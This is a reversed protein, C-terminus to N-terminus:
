FGALKRPRVKQTVPISNGQRWFLHHLFAALLHERGMLHRKWQWLQTAGCSICWSSQTPHHHKLCWRETGGTYPHPPALFGGSNCRLCPPTSRSLPSRGDWSLASLPLWCLYIDPCIPVHVPFVHVLVSMSMPLSIAPRLFLCRHESGCGEAVVFRQETGWVCQGRQKGQISHRWGKGGTWLGWPSSGSRHLWAWLPKREHSMRPDGFLFLSKRVLSEM